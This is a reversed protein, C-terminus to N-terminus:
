AVVEQFLICAGSAEPRQKPIPGQLVWPGAPGLLMFAGPNICRHKPISAPSPHLKGRCVEGGSAMKATKGLELLMKELLFATHVM